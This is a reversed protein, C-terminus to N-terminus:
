RTPAVPAPAAAKKGAPQKVPAPPPPLYKQV